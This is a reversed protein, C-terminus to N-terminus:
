PARGGVSGMGREGAVARTYVLARLRRCRFRAQHELIGSLAIRGGAAVRQALAPALLILPNALINAVVIEYRERRCHM